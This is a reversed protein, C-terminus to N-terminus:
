LHILLPLRLNKTHAFYSRYLAVHDERYVREGRENREIEFGQEREIRRITSTSTAFEHAVDSITLAKQGLHAELESKYFCRNKGDPRVSRLVGSKDWRRVTDISVNLYAAAQGISLLESNPSTHKSM